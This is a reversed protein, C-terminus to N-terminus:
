LVYLLIRFYLQTNKPAQILRFLYSFKMKFKFNSKKFIGMFIKIASGQTTELRNLTRDTERKSYFYNCTM